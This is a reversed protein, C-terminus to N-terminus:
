LYQSVTQWYRSFRRLDLKEEVEPDLEVFPTIEFLEVPLKRERRLRLCIQNFRPAISEVTALRSCGLQAALLSLQETVDGKCIQINPIELLCEYLFVLRKVSLQYNELLENDFVFVVPAGPYAELAPNHPDLNDGHLWVLVKEGNELSM